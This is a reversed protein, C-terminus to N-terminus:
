KSERSCNFKKLGIELESCKNLICTKKRWKNKESSNYATKYKQEQNVFDKQENLSRSNSFNSEYKSKLPQKSHPVKKMKYSFKTKTQFVYKTNQMNKTKIQIKIRDGAPPYTQQANNRLVISCFVFKFRLLTYYSLMHM